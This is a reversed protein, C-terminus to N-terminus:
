CGREDVAVYSIQEGVMGQFGQPHHRRMEEQWRVRETAEYIPRVVVASLNILPPAM